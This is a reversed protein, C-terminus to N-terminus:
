TQTYTHTHKHRHTHTDTHKHRHTHTHTRARARTHTHPPPVFFLVFQFVVGAGLLGRFTVALPMQQQQKHTTEFVFLILSQETGYRHCISTDLWSPAEM